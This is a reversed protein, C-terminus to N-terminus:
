TGHNKKALDAYFTTAEREDNIAHKLIQLEETDEQLEGKTETSPPFESCQVPNSIDACACWEDESLWRGSSQLEGCLKQLIKIHGEEESALWSLTKRSAASTSKAAADSYYRYAEKERDLALNLAELENM